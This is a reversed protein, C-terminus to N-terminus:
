VYKQFYKHAIIIDSEIQKGLAEQSKFERVDRIKKLLNVSVEKGYMDKNFDFVYIEFFLKKKDDTGISKNGYHSVAKYFEGGAKVSCAYVGFDVGKPYNDLKINLTPYGIRSGNGKGRVVIGRIEYLGRSM